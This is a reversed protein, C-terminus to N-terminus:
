LAAKVLTLRMARVHTKPTLAHATVLMTDRYNEACLLQSNHATFKKKKMMKMKDIMMMDSSSPSEPTRDAAVRFLM